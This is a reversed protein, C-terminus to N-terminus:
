MRVCRGYMMLVVIIVLVKSIQECAAVVPSTLFLQLQSVSKLQQVVSMSLKTQSHMMYRSTYINYFYIDVQDSPVNHQLDLTLLSSSETCCLSVIVAM